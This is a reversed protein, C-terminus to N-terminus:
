IGDDTAVVAAAPLDPFTRILNVAAPKGQDTQGAAIVPTYHLPLVAPALGCLDTRNRLRWPFYTKSKKGSRGM